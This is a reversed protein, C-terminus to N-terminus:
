LPTHLQFGIELVTLLMLPDSDFAFFTDFAFFSGLARFSGLRAVFLLGFVLESSRVVLFVAKHRDKQKLHGEMVFKLM